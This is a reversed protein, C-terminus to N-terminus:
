MRMGMIGQEVPQRFDVLHHRARLLGAHVRDREGIVADEIAGDLKIFKRLLMADFRDEADLRINRGAVPEGFLVAFSIVM